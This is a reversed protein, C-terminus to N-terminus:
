QPRTERNPDPNEDAVKQLANKKALQDNSSVDGTPAGCGVLAFVFGALLCVIALRKVVSSGVDAM